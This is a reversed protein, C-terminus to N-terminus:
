ERIMEVEADERHTHVTDIRTEVMVVLLVMQVINHIDVDEGRPFRIGDKLSKVRLQIEEGLARDAPLGMEQM